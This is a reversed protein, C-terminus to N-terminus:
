PFNIVIGTPHERMWKFFLEKQEHKDFVIASEGSM